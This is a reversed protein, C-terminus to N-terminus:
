LEYGQPVPVSLAADITYPVLAELQLRERESAPVHRLWKDYLSAIVNASPNRVNDASMSRQLYHAFPISPSGWERLEYPHVRWSHPPQVDPVHGSKLKLKLKLYSMPTMGLRTQAKPMAARGRKQHPDNLLVDPNTEALRAIYPWEPRNVGVARDNFRTPMQEDLVAYQWLKLNPLNGCQTIMDRIPLPIHGKTREATLVYHWWTLKSKLHRTSGFFVRRTFDHKLVYVGYTDPLQSTNIYDLPFYRINM